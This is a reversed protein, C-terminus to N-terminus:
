LRPKGGGDIVGHPLRQLFRRIAHTVKYDSELKVSLINGLTVSRFLHATGHEGGKTGFCTLWALLTSLTLLLIAHALRAHIHLCRCWRSTKTRQCTPALGLRM